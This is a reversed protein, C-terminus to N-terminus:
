QECDLVVECTAFHTIKGSSVCVYEFLSSKAWKRGNKNCSICIQCVSNSMVIYGSRLFRLLYNQQLIYFDFLSLYADPERMSTLSKWGLGVHM